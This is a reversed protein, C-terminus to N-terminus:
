LYFLGQESGSASDGSGTAIIHAGTRVASRMCNTAGNYKTIDGSTVHLSYLGTESGIIIYETYVAHHYAWNISGLGAAIHSQFNTLDAKSKMYGGSRSFFYFVDGVQVCATLYVNDHAISWIGSNNHPIIYLRGTQSAFLNSNALCQITPLTGNMLAGGTENWAVGGQQPSGGLCVDYFGTESNWRTMRDNSLTNRMFGYIVCYRSDNAVQPSFPATGYHGTTAEIDVLANNTEDVYKTAGGQSNDRMSFLVRGDPTYAAHGGSGKTNTAYTGIVENDNFKTLPRGYSYSGVAWYVGPDLLSGVISNMGTVPLETLILTGGSTTVRYNQEGTRDQCTTFIDEGCRTVGGYRYGRVDSWLIPPPGFPTVKDFILAGAKHIRGISIGNKRIASIRQRNKYLPM